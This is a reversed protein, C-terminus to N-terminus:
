GALSLLQARLCSVMLASPYSLNPDYLMTAKPQHGHIGFVGLTGFRRFAPQDDPDVRVRLHRAALGRRVGHMGRELEVADFVLVRDDHDTALGVLDERLRHM